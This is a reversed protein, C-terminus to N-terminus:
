CGGPAGYAGIGSAPDIVTGPRDWLGLHVVYWQGRWSILSYIGFSRIRGGQRYVLRSGPAHWYGVSNYCGGPAIWAWEHPVSVYRLTATGGAAVLRHAAHVDAAFNALLRTRYDAAADPIAKVQLYAARPFFAGRGAAPSDTVIARWLVHMRARFAQTATAPLAGTQPLRGPDVASASAPAALALLSAAAISAGRLRTVDVRTLTYPGRM